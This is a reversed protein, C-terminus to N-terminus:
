EQELLLEVLESMEKAIKENEDNLPGNMARDLKIQANHSRKKPQKLICKDWEHIAKHMHALKDLVGGNVVAENASVWAQEVVERFNKEHLWKAEFRFSSRQTNPLVQFDIDLMIPRHDSKAYEMHQVLAGPHMTNWAFNVVVRDLKQRM